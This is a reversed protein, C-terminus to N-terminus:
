AIQKVDVLDGFTTYPIKYSIAGGATVTATLNGAGQIAFPKDGLTPTVTVGAAGSEAINVTVTLEPSPAPVPTVEMRVSKSNEKFQWSGNGRFGHVALQLFDEASILMFANQEVYKEAVSKHEKEKLYAIM